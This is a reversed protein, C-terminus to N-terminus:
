IKCVSSNKSAIGGKSKCILLHFCIWHAVWIREDNLETTHPCALGNLTSLAHRMQM